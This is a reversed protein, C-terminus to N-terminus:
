NVVKAYGDEGKEVVIMDDVADHLSEIHTILIVSKFYSKVMQLIKTFGELNDADLSQAPEDLIFINSTPLTTVSLFALRIAFAALEHEAGSGMEMDRPEYKPHKIYISLRSKNLKLFIQFDVVNSLIRQIEDNIISLKSKIIENPIGNVHMCSMFHNFAEYDKHIGWFVDEDKQL